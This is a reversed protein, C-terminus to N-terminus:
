KTRKLLIKILLDLGAEISHQQFDWESIFMFSYFSSITIHRKSTMYRCRCVDRFHLFGSKEM